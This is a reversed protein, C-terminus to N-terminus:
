EKDAVHALRRDAGFHWSAGIIMDPSDVASGPIISGLRIKGFLDAIRLTANAVSEQGIVAHFFLSRLILRSISWVAVATATELPTEPKIGTLQLAQSTLTSLVAGTDFM